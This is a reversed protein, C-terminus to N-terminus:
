QLNFLRVIIPKKDEIQARPCEVEYVSSNVHDLNKFLNMKIPLHTKEYSFYMSVINQSRDM